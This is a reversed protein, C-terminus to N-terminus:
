LGREETKEGEACDSAQKNVMRRADTSSMHPLKGDVKYRLIVPFIILHVMM